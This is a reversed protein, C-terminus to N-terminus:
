KDNFEIDNYNYLLEVNEGEISDLDSIELKQDYTVFVHIIEQCKDLGLNTRFKFNYPKFQNNM